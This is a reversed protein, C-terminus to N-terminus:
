KVIDKVRLRGSEVPLRSKDHYTHCTVCTSTVRGEPGHCSVCSAKGPLLLDSTLKSTDAGGHCDVCRITRHTDHNFLAHSMWRRPRSEEGKVTSRLYTPQIAHPLKPYDDSTKVSHCKGCGDDGYLATEAELLKDNLDKDEVKKKTFFDLLFGRLHVPDEHVVRDDEVKLEHCDRCHTEYLIPAMAPGGPTSPAHCFGCGLASGELGPRGALKTKVLEEVADKKAKDEARLHVAHNFKLDSPDKVKRAFLAFEPHDQFSRISTAIAHDAGAMCTPPHAEKAAPKLQGHCAVCQVDAVKALRDSGEHERHCVSCNSSREHGKPGAVQSTANVHHVPADHCALCAADLRAQWGAPDLHREGWTSTHCAECKKELMAHRAALHGSTYLRDDRLMAAAAIWAAGLTPLLISLIRRWRRFPHPKRFYALDIRKARAKTDRLLAM